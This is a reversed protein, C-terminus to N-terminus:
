ATPTLELAIFDLCRAACNWAALELAREASVGSYYHYLRHRGEPDGTGWLASNGHEGAHPFAQYKTQLDVVIAVTHDTNRSM